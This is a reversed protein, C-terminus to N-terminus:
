IYDSILCVRSVMNLGRGIFQFLQLFAQITVNEECGIISLVGVAANRLDHRNLPTALSPALTWPAAFHASM